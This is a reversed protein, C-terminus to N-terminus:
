AFIAFATVPIEPRSAPASHQEQAALSQQGASSQDTILQGASSQDAIVSYLQKLASRSTYTHEEGNDYRIPYAAFCGVLTSLHGAECLRAAYIVISSDVENVGNITVHMSNVIDRVMSGVMITLLIVMMILTDYSWYTMIVSM